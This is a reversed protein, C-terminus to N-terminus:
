EHEAQSFKVQNIFTSCWGLLKGRKEENQSAHERWYSRLFNLWEIIAAPLLHERMLNKLRVLERDLFYLGYGGHLSIQALGIAYLAKSTEWNKSILAADAQIRKMRGYFLPFEYGRDEYNEKLEKAYAPIRDVKGEELDFEAFGLLSDVQHRIDNYKKSLEYSENLLQRAKERLNLRWYVNSMQNVIGPLFSIVEYNEALLKAQDFFDKSTRYLRQAEDIDSEEYAQDGEFWLSWAYDFYAGVLNKLDDPEESKKFIEIAKKFYPNAQEYNGGDRYIIARTLYGRGLPSTAALLEWIRIAELCYEQAEIYNGALCVVYALNNYINAVANERINSSQQAQDLAQEYYERAKRWDGKLRHIYGLYNLVRVIEEARNLKSLVEQEYAIALEYNGSLEECRGLLNDIELKKEPADPNHELLALLAQKVQPVAQYGDDIMQKLRAIEVKYKKEGDLSANVAQICTGLRQAFRLRHVKRADDATKIYYDVGQAIDVILLHRLYEIQANDKRRTLNDLAISTELSSPNEGSKEKEMQAALFQIDKGFFTVAKQSYQRRQYHDPDCVPWVHENVMRCMEDHLAIRGGPLQKVYVTSLAKELLMDVDAPTDLRLLDLLMNKNAPYVHALLLVLESLESRQDALYSVMIKESESRSELSLNEFYLNPKSDLFEAFRDDQALRELALDFLIPIGKSLLKVKEVTEEQFVQKIHLRKIQLYHDSEDSSFPRLPVLVQRFRATQFHEQYIDKANRGSIIVVINQSEVLLSKIFNWIENGEAKDTTDLLFAIRQSLAVQNLCHQFEKRVQQSEEELRQLSVGAAELKRWDVLKRLYSTFKEDGLESVMKRQLTGRSNVARDDFDITPVILLRREAYDPGSYKSYIEQLLRTKGIGGDESYVFLCQTTKWDFLSKEVKEMEAQRGIFPFRETM